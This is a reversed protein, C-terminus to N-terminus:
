DEKFKYNLRLFAEKYIPTLILGYDTIIKEKNEYWDDGNRSNFDNFTRDFINYKHYFGLDTLVRKQVQTFLEYAQQNIRLKINSEDYYKLEEQLKYVEQLSKNKENQLLTLDQAEVEIKM